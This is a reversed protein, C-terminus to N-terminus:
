VGEQARGKGGPRAREPHPPQTGKGERLAEELESQSVRKPCGRGWAAGLSGHRDAHERQHHGSCQGVSAGSEAAWGAEPCM